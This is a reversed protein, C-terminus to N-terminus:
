TLNHHSVLIPLSVKSKTEPEKWNMTSMKISSSQFLSKIFLLDSTKYISTTSCHILNTIPFFYAYFLLNFISSPLLVESTPQHSRTSHLQNFTFANDFRKNPEHSEHGENSPVLDILVKVASVSEFMLLFTVHHQVATVSSYIMPGGKSETDTANVDIKMGNGAVSAGLDPM